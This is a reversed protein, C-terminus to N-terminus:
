LILFFVESYNTNHATYFMDLIALKKPLKKKQYNNFIAKTKSMKKKKKKKKKKKSPHM